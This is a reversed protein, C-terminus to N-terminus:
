RPYYQNIIQWARGQSLGVMTSSSRQSHGCDILADLLTATDAELTAQLAALRARRARIRKAQQELTTTAM